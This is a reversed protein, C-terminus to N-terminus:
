EEAYKLMEELNKIRVVNEKTEGSNYENDVLFVKKAYGSMDNANRRNDEVVFDVEPFYKLIALHKKESFFLNDYQLCNKKLWETTQIMLDPYASLPRATVVIIYYGLDHLKGLVSAARARVKLFMKARSTRYEHKTMRYQNYSLTDKMENLNSFSKGYRKNVFDVWCDPYYNLVGDIDFICVKM